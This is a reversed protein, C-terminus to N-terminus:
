GRFPPFIAFFGNYCRLFNFMLAFSKEEGFSRNISHKKYFLMANKVGCPLFRFQRSIIYLLLPANQHQRHVADLRRGVLRAGGEVLRLDGRQGDANQLVAKQLGDAHPPDSQVFVLKHRPLAAQAGATQGLQVLHRRYQGVIVVAFRGRQPKQFIQLAALQVREVRRPANFLDDPQPAAGLGLSRPPQPQALRGKGVLQAQQGQRRFLLLKARGAMQALAVGAGGQAQGLSAAGGRQFLHRPVLHAHALRVAKHVLHQGGGVPGAGAAARDGHHPIHPEKYICQLVRHIQHGLLPDGGRGPAILM